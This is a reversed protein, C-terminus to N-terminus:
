REGRHNRAAFVKVTAPAGDLLFKGPVDYIWEYGARIFNKQSAVNQSYAAAEIWRLGVSDLAWQTVARTARSGIGKGWVEKAFLCIGIHATKHVGDIRHIRVTGVHPIADHTWIGFLVADGAERNQKVFDRVTQETQSVRKVSDLYRNVEIDNLGDVYGPHVDESRLPRAYGGVFGLVVDPTM